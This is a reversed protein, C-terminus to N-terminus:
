GHPVERRRPRWSGQSEQEHMLGGAAYLSSAGMWPRRVDTSAGQPVWERM